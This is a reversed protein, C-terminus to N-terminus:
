PYSHISEPNYKTRNDEDPVKIELTVNGVGGTTSYAKVMVIGFAKNDAVSAGWQLAGWGIIFGEGVKLDGNFRRNTTRINYNEGGEGTPAIIKTELFTTLEGDWDISNFADPTISSRNATVLTYVVQNFGNMYPAMATQYAAGAQVIGSPMIRFSTSSYKAFVFDLMTQASAATTVDFVHPARYASFWNNKGPGTETTLNVTFTLLKNYVKAVPLEIVKEKNGQNKATIRVAETNKVGSYNATFNFEDRPTGLTLPVETGYSGNVKVAYSLSVVDSGSTIMGSLANSIGAYVKDISTIGGSLTINVADDVVSGIKFTDVVAGEYSNTAKIIVATLGKQVVLGASFDTSNKNTFQINQPQSAVGNVVTTYTIASLDYKSNVHGTVAIHKNEFVTEREKIGDTFTLVPLDRVEKFSLHVESSHNLKDFSVIVLEVLGKEANFVIDKQLETPYDTQDFNVPVGSETGNANEKIFFYSLRRIGLPSEVTVPITVRQGANLEELNPADESVTIVPGETGEMDKKCGPFAIALVALIGLLLSFTRKM